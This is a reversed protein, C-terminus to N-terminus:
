TKENFYIIDNYKGNIFSDLPIRYLGKLNGVWINNDKDIDVCTSSSFDFNSTKTLSVIKEPNGSIISIGKEGAILIEGPQNTKICNIKGNLVTDDKYYTKVDGNMKCLGM